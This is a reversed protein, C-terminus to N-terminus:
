VLAYFPRIPRGISSCTLQSSLPIQQPAPRFLPLVACSGRLPCRVPFSEVIAPTCVHCTFCLKIMPAVSGFRFQSPQTPTEGLLYIKRQTERRPMVSLLILPCRIGRSAQVEEVPKLPRSCISGVFSLWNLQADDNDSSPEATKCRGYREASITMLHGNKFGGRFQALDPRKTV